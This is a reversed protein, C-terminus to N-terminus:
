TDETVYSKLTDLASENPILPANGTQYLVLGCVKDGLLTEVERGCSAYTNQDAVLLIRDYGVCLGAIGSLVGSGILVADTECSHNRGCACNPIGKLLRQIDM